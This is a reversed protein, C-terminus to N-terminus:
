LMSGVDSSSTPYAMLLDRLADASLDNRMALAFLNIIEEAHPYVVHAGLIRGSEKEKIVKYASVEGGRHQPTYWSSADGASVRVDLNQESAEEETIGVAAMKPLTFVVQPIARYDGTQENGHLLNHAIMQAEYNAVPTLPKGTMTADGGAYVAPNSPSQLYDNVAVGKGDRQVDAKELDLDDLQPARGAGHIVLDAEFRAEGKDTEAVLVFGDGDKEIASAEHNLHIRIGAERSAELVLEVHDPDFQELPRGDQHVIHVEAGARSAVHASEFSIYGGGVFVIRQPLEDLELFDDSYAIHEEGEIDLEMPKAGAAICVHKAELTEGDVAVANLGTFHARGHYCDIGAKSFKEETSEPVDDTFTRKFRMLAPWDLRLEQFALGKGELRQVQALQHAAHALVKKPDCGRQSCTGGFPRSDIIAVSWGAERCTSAVTSGVSGTGIVVLDYQKSM